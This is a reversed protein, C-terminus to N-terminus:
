LTSFSVTNQNLDLEINVDGGAWNSVHWKGKGDYVPGTYNGSAVSIDVDADSEDEYGAIAGLSNANWDGLVTYFRFTFQDAPINITNTYIGSGSEREVVYMADSDINWGNCAGVIYIKEGESTQMLVTYDNLNVTIEVKGGPWNPYNWKGKGEFVEGAYKDNEFEIDLNADNEDEYGEIAGFSNANWDGLQSYFRFTFKNEPIDVIGHYIKTAIDTEDLKMADSNIDWGQCEGVIYLAGAETIPIYSSVLPLVVVNSFISSINSNPIWAHVRVAVSVPEGNYNEDTLGYIANVGECFTSGSVTITASTVPPNLTMVLPLGDKGVYDGDEYNNDKVAQDWSAFDEESKALQLQYDPTTAVGYNPQSVTFTISNLSNNKDDARFIYLQDAMPPVNLVFETPISLRPQTDEKCSTFGVGLTLLM